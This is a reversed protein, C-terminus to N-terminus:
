VKQCGPVRISLASRWLTLLTYTSLHCRKVLSSRWRRQRMTNRCQNTSAIRDDCAIINITHIAPLYSVSIFCSQLHCVKYM